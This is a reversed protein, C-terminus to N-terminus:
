PSGILKSGQTAFPARFGLDLPTPQPGKRGLQLESLRPLSRLWRPEQKGMQLILTISAGEIDFIQNLHLSLPM